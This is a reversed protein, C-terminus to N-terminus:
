ILLYKCPVEKFCNPLNNHPLSLLSDLICERFIILMYIGPSNAVMRFMNNRGTEYRFICLSFYLVIFESSNQVVKFDPRYDQSLSLM